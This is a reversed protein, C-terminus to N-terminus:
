ILDKIQVVQFSAGQLADSVERIRLIVKVGLAAYAFSPVASQAPRKHILFMLM